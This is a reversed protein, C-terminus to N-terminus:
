SSTWITSCWPDLLLLAGFRFFDQVAAITLGASAIATGLQGTYPSFGTLITADLLDPYKTNIGTLQISYTSMDAHKLTEGCKPLLFHIYRGLSHGLGIIQEFQFGTRGDKIHRILQAAVEIETDHQVEQIGDPKDSRGVGPNTSNVVGSLTGSSLSAIIIAHMGLRDYM